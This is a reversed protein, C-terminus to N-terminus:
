TAAPQQIPKFADRQAPGGAISESVTVGTVGPIQALAQVISIRNDPTLKNAPVTIIGNRVILTPIEVKFGHKLIGAAYGAIYADETVAANVTSTFFLLTAAIISLYRVTNGKKLTKNSSSTTRYSKSKKAQLEHIIMELLRVDSNKFM